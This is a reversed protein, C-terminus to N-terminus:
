SLRRSLNRVVRSHEDVNAQQSVQGITRQALEVDALCQAIIVRAESLSLGSSEALWHADVQTQLGGRAVTVFMEKSREISMATVSSLLQTYDISDAVVPVAVEVFPVPTHAIPPQRNLIGM